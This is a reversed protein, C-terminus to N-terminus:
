KKRYVGQGIAVSHAMANADKKMEELSLEVPYKNSLYIKRLMSSSVKKPEFITNLYKTLRNESMPTNFRLNILLYNTSNIRGWKRIIKVLDNSLDLRKDGYHKATKYSRLVFQKDYLSIYNCKEPINVLDKKTKAFYTNAFNNRLPPMMTYLCIVLYKQYLDMDKKDLNNKFKSCLGAYKNRVNRIEEMTMWNDEEKKSKEQKDYNSQVLEAQKKTLESYNYYLDEGLDFAKIIVLIVALINKKSHMNLSDLYESVKKVDDLQNVDYKGDFVNEFLRKINVRYIKITSDTVNRKKKITEIIKDM